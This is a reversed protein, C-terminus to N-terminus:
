VRKYNKYSFPKWGFKKDLFYLFRHKINKFNKKKVDGTFKWNEAAVLEKMVAPHTGEFLSITDIESYDFAMEEDASNNSNGNYLNGFAKHKKFMTVPNKVWGYHYVHADILKVQLKDDNIFRFGQADRYSRINKNNKIIRIEFPYRSRGDGLYKYSGYFHYYKFLLGDVRSDDKYKIMAQKIVEYDKEHFIEDAQIYFLWDADAPVAEMAKNTEAALVKGGTMLQKDWVSHITKIKTSPIAAVVTNTDDESDGLNIIMEDVLPLVSQIAEVFPYGYKVANKIFTFGAVKMTKNIAEQV